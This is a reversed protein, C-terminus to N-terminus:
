GKRIYYNTFGEEDEAGLFECGIKSVGKEIDNKTGPDTGMMKLVKGSEMDKVHKKVKLMPMPCSLGRCDLTEDVVVGEM